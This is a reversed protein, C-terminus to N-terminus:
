DGHDHSTEEAEAGEGMTHHPEEAEASLIYDSPVESLSVVKGGHKAIFTKAAELEGFPVAEEAGMGGRRDSGIVFHAGDAPIWTDPEPTEWSARGMDNVYFATITKPEDPLLTFAIGDRVSSFWLPEEAGKLFIQAKPGIHDVVIMSCYYGTAERTLEQHKPAAVQEPEGDCASLLAVALLGILPFAFSRM